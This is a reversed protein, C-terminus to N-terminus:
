LAPCLSTIAIGTQCMVLCSVPCNHCHGPCCLGCSLQAWRLVWRDVLDVSQLCSCTASVPWPQPPLGELSQLWLGRSFLPSPDKNMWENLWFHDNLLYWSGPVRTSPSSEPGPKQRWPKLLVSLCVLLIWNLIVLPLLYVLKAHPSTLRRTEYFTTNLSVDSLPCPHPQCLSPTPTLQAPCLPLFTFKGPPVFLMYWPGHTFSFKSLRTIDPQFSIDPSTLWLLIMYIKDSHPSSSSAM